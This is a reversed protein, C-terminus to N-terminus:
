SLSTNFAVQDWRWLQQFFARPLTLNHQGRCIEAITREGDIAVFLQEQGADIPLYLDTYTHNRNILVAATGHPLRDRVVVTDPLRIPVYSLWSDGDFDIAGRQPTRDNRYAVVSHRVMTGRFLEIAAYQQEPSLEVLKSKHPTSALAGCWPLYPAQRVWRGFILDAHCLFEM